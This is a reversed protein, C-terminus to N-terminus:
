ESFFCQKVLGNEISIRVSLDKKKEDFAYTLSRNYVYTPSSSGTIADPAGLFTRLETTTMGQVMSVFRRRSIVQGGHPVLREPISPLPRDQQLQTDLEAALRQIVEDQSQIYEEYRKIQAQIATHFTEWEGLTNQAQLYNQETVRLLREVRQLERQTNASRSRVALAEKKMRQLAEANQKSQRKTTRLENTLEEIKHRSQDLQQARKRLDQAMASLTLEDTQGLQVQRTVHNTALPGQRPAEGSGQDSGCGSLVVCMAALTAAGYLIKM